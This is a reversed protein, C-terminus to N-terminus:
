PCPAPAHGLGEVAGDLWQSESSAGGRVQEVVSAEEGMSLSVAWCRRCQWMGEVKSPRAAGGRVHENEPIGAACGKPCLVKNHLGGSGM